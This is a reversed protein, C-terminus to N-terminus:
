TACRELATKSKPIARRKLTTQRRPKLRRPDVDDLQEELLFRREVM